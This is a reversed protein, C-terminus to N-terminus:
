ELKFINFFVLFLLQFNSCCGGVLVEQAGGEAAKGKNVGHVNRGPFEWVSSDKNGVQPLGRGRGSGTGTTVAEM